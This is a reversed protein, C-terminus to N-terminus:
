FPAPQEPKDAWELLQAAYARISEPTGQKLIAMAVADVYDVSHKEILSRVTSQVSESFAKEKQLTLNEEAAKGIRLMYEAITEGMEQPHEEKAQEIAADNAKQLVKLNKQEETPATRGDWKLGMEKLYKRSAEVAAFYGLDRLTDPEMKLVGFVQRAESLRQVLVSQKPGYKDRGKADKPAVFGALTDFEKAQQIAGKCDEEWQDYTLAEAAKRLLNVKTAEDATFQRFIDGAFSIRQTRLAPDTGAALAAPSLHEQLTNMVNEM